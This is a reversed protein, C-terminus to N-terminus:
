LQNEKYNELGFQVIKWQGGEKRMAVGARDVIVHNNESVGFWYKSEYSIMAPKYKMKEEESITKQMSLRLYDNVILPNTIKFEGFVPGLPLIKKGKLSSKDKFSNRLAQLQDKKSKGYGVAIFKSYTDLLTEWDNLSIAEVHTELTKEPTSFDPYKNKGYVCISQLSGLVILLFLFRKKLKIMGGNQM